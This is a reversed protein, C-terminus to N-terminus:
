VESIPPPAHSIRMGAAEDRPSLHQSVCLIRLLPPKCTSALLFSQGANSGKAWEINMLKVPQAM